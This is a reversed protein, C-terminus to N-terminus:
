KKKVNLGEGASLPPASIPLHTMMIVKPAANPFAMMPRTDSIMPRTDYRKPSHICRILYALLLSWSLTGYPSVCFEESKSLVGVGPDENEGSFKAKGAVERPRQPPSVRTIYERQFALFSSLFRM